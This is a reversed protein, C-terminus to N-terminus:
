GIDRRLTIFRAGLAFVAVYAVLVLSGELRTLQETLGMGMDMFSSGLVSSGAAGPMFQAIGSTPEWAALALGLIPEIFQTMALIVIIAAVQNVILGGLAVGIMSWLIFVWVASAILKWVEGDNLYAGDGLIELFPAAGAVTSTIAIVGYVFGVIAAVVLKAVLLLTRSPEVLLSSTITKHRFEGTFLLSGIILPFVYGIPNVLSYLTTALARGGLMGGTMDDTATFAFGMILSIFALYAIMVLSLIWWMRTTFLKRFEAKIAAIM